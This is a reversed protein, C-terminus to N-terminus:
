RPAPPPPPLAPAAALVSPPGAGHGAKGGRSRGGRGGAGWGAPTPPLLQHRRGHRIVRPPCAAAPLPEPSLAALQMLPRAGAHPPIVAFRSAMSLNTPQQLHHLHPTSLPPPTALVQKVIRPTARCPQPQTLPAPPQHWCRSCVAPARQLPPKCSLARRGSVQARAQPSSCPAQFGPVDDVLRGHGVGAPCLWSAPHTPHAARTTTPLAGGGGGRRPHSTLQCGPTCSCHM